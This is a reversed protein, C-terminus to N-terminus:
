DKQEKLIRDGTEQLLDFGDEKLIADTLQGSKIVIQPSASSFVVQRVPAAM